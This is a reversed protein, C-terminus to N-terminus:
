AVWVAASALAAVSLLSLAWNEIRKRRDRRLTHPTLIRPIAILVAADSLARLGSQSGVRPNIARGAILPGVFLVLGAVLGAGYVFMPVPKVPFRPPAAMEIVEFQQGKQNEEIRQAGRASEAKARYQEYQKELVDFGKSLEALQQEIQPTAEVRQQYLEIDGRIQQQDEKHREVERGAVQIQAALPTAASITQGGEGAPESGDVPVEVGSLLENLETRKSKLSPHEESYRARLEDLERRLAAVRATFPDVLGPGISISPDYWAAQGQQARLEQLRSQAAELSDENAELDRRRAELLRLNADLFDATEYLHQTRFDAIEREKQLLRGQAEAALEELTNTTDAARATRVQVNQQIYLDTLTNVVAAVREPDDGRYSIEFLGSQTVKVQMRSRIARILAAREAEDPMPGFTEEILKLMYPRSLVAEQLVTLRLAMDDTVTSTVYEEPIKQPAVFIKTKAEYVKPLYDLVIIAAALGLCVGAVLTWWSRLVEDAWELAMLNMPERSM